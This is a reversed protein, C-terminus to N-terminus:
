GEAEDTQQASLRSTRVCSTSTQTAMVLGFPVDVTQLRQLAGHEAASSDFQQARSHKWNFLQVEV